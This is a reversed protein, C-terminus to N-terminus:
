KGTNLNKIYWDVFCNKPILILRGGPMKLSPFDEQKVISYVTTLSVGLFQAIDKPQLNFPYNSLQSMVTDQQLEM